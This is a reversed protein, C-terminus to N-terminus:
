RLCNRCTVQRDSRCELRDAAPAPYAACATIFTHCGTFRAAHVTGDPEVARRPYDTLRGTDSQDGFLHAGFGFGDLTDTGCADTESTLFLADQSPKVPRGFEAPTMRKWDRGTTDSM